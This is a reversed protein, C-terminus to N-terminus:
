SFTNRQSTTVMGKDEAFLSNIRPQLVWVGFPFFWLLFFEGAFDSFTVPRQWEAAKLAKANFYLCYLICFMCFLHLPILFEAGRVVAEGESAITKSFTNFFFLQLFLIYVVPIILFLKFKRLNMQVTDPIKKYLNIGLTYFWGLLVVVVLIMTILFAITIFSLNGQALMITSVFDFLLPLGVILLFLQWHKLYLLLKM